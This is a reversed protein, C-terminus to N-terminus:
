KDLENIVDYLTIVFMKGITARFLKITFGKYLGNSCIDKVTTYKDSTQLKTQITNMPYTVFTSIISSVGSVMVNHTLDDKQFTTYLGFFLSNSLMQKYFVIPISKYLNKKNISKNMVQKNNKYFSTPGTIFISEFGGLVMGSIFPKNISENLKDFGVLRFTIKPVVNLLSPKIGSYLNKFRMTKFNDTQLRTKITDLPHFIICDLTSVLIATKISM